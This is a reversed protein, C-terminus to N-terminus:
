TGRKVSGTTVAVREASFLFVWLDYDAVRPNTGRPSEYALRRGFSKVFGSHSSQATQADSRVNADV